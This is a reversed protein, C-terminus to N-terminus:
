VDTNVFGDHDERINDPTSRGRDHPREGNDPATDCASGM